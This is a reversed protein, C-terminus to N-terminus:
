FMWQRWHSSQDFVTLAIAFGLFTSVELGHDMNFINEALKGVQLM